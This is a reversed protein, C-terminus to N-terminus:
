APRDKDFYSALAARLAARDVPKTLFDDCGAAICSERAGAMAHATLAIVPGTFGAARIQRTAEYGDIEPMQMDMLVLDFPEGSDLAALAQDVAQVGNEVVVLEVQAPRLLAKILRQNDPGDEALLIRVGPRIPRRAGGTKRQAAPSDDPIACDPAPLTLRFESGRGVDSSVELGGGLLAALRRSISLGLGIGGYRRTHSADAQGFTAFIKERDQASIGIGTDRVAFCVTAASDRGVWLSVSGHETFKLANQLLNTLVQRLRVPDTEMAEPCNPDIEFNFELGKEHAATAVPAATDEVLRRLRCPKRHIDLEGAEVRSIDLIGDILQLLDAGNRRVAASWEAREDGQAEGKLLLETYGLVATMPTRIEHSMNALFESKARTAAEAKARAAELALNVTTLSAAYVRAEKEAALAEEMRLRERRTVNWKETLASALQCVEVPDFPKKLFLLRDTRGLKALMDAWTYDSYASCIVVQLDADIQWLREITEVGDWGPPMRGDVFALAFPRDLGVTRRVMELAEQGQRASEVEYIESM